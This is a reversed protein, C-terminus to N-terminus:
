LLGQGGVTRVIAVLDGDQMKHDVFDNLLGRVRAMDVAPITVDDVVFAMVRRINRASLEESSATEIGSKLKRSNESNNRRDPSETNIFEVAQLEQRKGNEFVEFDSLGLNPITQDNKDMVVVDTQVLQTTIRVVDDPLGQQNRTSGTQAILPGTLGLACFCALIKKM